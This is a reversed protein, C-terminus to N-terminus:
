RISGNAVFLKVKDLPSVFLRPSSTSPAYDINRYMGDRVAIESPNNYCRFNECALQQMGIHPLKRTQFDPNEIATKFEDLSLLGDKNMDFEDFLTQLVDADIVEDGFARQWEELSLDGSSDIDANLFLSSPDMALKRRLRPMATQPSRCHRCARSFIPSELVCVVCSWVPVKAQCVQCCDLQSENEVACSSCQWTSLPEATRFLAVTAQMAQAPDAFASCAFHSRDLLDRLGHTLLDEEMRSMQWRQFVELAKDYCNQKYFVLWLKSFVDSGFKGVLLNPNLNPVNSLHILSQLLSERDRDSFIL